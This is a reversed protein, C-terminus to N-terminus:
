LDPAAGGLNLLMDLERPACRHVDAGRLRAELFGYRSAQRGDRVAQSLATSQGVIVLLQKARTMATYLLNRRLMLHHEQFLALIVAPYESGQSKHVTMAYAPVLDDLAQGSLAVSRGDFAVEASRASWNWSLVMGVDGNMIGLTYDNRTMMVRDGQRLAEHKSVPSTEPHHLGSQMLANLQHTGVPGSHMPTLIQIDTHPDLGYRTPLRRLFLDAILEAGETANNREMFFCDNDKSHTAFVPPQGHLVRHANSVIASGAAQRHVQTLRSVPVVASSILDAFVRGPGVPPLQDADGTLLLVTQEPLEKLVQQMLTLDVMSTEDILLVDAAQGLGSGVANVLGPVLGFLRHLTSAPQQVVESLRKAARGTPSALALKRGAVLFSDVVARLVTTKGVGPGGTLVACRSSLLLQAASEQETTFPINAANVLPIREPAPLSAIKRIRAAVFEEASSLAPTSALLTPGHSHVRVQDNTVAEILAAQLLPAPLGTLEVATEVLTCPPLASHGQHQALLLVHKLAASMRQPAEVPIGARQAFEDATKFGIGRLREVLSWPNRQVVSPAAAGFAAILAACQGSTLGFTSLAVLTEQEARGSRVAASLALARKKGLGKVLQLCDPDMEIRQLASAGFADVVRQALRKGVGRVGRSELYTAIGQATVPVETAASEIEFQRGFRPHVGWTGRICLVDGKRVDFPISGRASYPEASAGELLRLVTFGSTSNRFSIDLVQVTHTSPQDAAM